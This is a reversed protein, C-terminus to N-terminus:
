ANDWMEKAKAKTHQNTTNKLEDRLKVYENLLKNYNDLMKEDPFNPMGPNIAYQYHKPGVRNWSPVGRASEKLLGFNDLINGLNSIVERFVRMWHHEEPRERRNPESEIYHPWKSKDQFAADVLTPLKEILAKLKSKLEKLKEMGLAEVVSANEKVKSEVERNMWTAAATPMGKIIERYLIDMQSQLQKTKQELEKIKNAIDESKM